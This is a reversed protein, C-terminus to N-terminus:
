GNLSQGFFTAQRGTPRRWKWCHETGKLLSDTVRDTKTLIEAETLNTIARRTSTIAWDGRKEPFDPFLMRHVHTPGIYEDPHKWFIRAIAKEQRNATRQLHEIQEDSYHATRHLTATHLSVRDM